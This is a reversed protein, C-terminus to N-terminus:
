LFIVEWIHVKGWGRCGYGIWSDLSRSDVAFLYSLLSVSLATGLLVVLVVDGTWAGGVCACGDAPGNM